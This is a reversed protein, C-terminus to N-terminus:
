SSIQHSEFAQDPTLKMLLKHAAKIGAYGLLM